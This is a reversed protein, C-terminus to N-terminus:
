LLCQGAKSVSVELLNPLLISYELTWPRLEREWGLKLRQLFKGWISYLLSLGPAWPSKLQFEKLSLCVRTREPIHGQWLCCFSGCFGRSTGEVRTNLPHWHISRYSSGFSIWTFLDKSSSPFFHFESSLSNWYPRTKSLFSPLVNLHVLIVRKEKWQIWPTCNKQKTMVKQMARDWSYVSGHCLVPNNLHIFCALQYYPFTLINRVTRWWPHCINCCVGAREGSGGGGRQGMGKAPM